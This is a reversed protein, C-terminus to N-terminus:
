RPSPAGTDIPYEIEASYGANKLSLVTSDFLADATDDDIQDDEDRFWEIGECIIRAKADETRADWIIRAVSSELHDGDRDVALWIDDGRSPIALVNAVRRCVAWKVLGRKPTDDRLQVTVQVMAEM